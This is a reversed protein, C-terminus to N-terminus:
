QLLEGAGLRWNGCLQFGMRGDGFARRWSNPRGTIRGGPPRAVLFTAEVIPAAALAAWFIVITMVSIMSSAISRDM